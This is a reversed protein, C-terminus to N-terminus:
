TEAQEDDSEEESELAPMDEAPEEDCPEPPMESEDPLNAAADRVDLKGTVVDAILRTRYERLLDIEHRTADIAEDLSATASEVYQVIADQESLPPLPVVTDALYKYEISEVTAEQKVWQGRLGAQNGEILAQLYRPIMQGNPRLAKMDQNLAVAVTNVAVPIFTRLIGSRVVVLVADPPILTSSSGDLAGPTIHDLTDSISASKMDKPSVWPIDGAWYAANSKSPTGGGAFRVVYKLKRLRWHEPIDGLWPVGSPKLRVNPDLGRTVARQIIAQKQENLLAILRQKARIYKRIRRDVYDLYRVIALQEAKPAITVSLGKLVNGDVHPIGMGVALARLTHEVQQCAYFFFQQDAMRPMVRAATSSVAGPKAKLFEGANAGDWLLITEGRHVLVLDPQYAAYEFPIEGNSRLYNMSLYPVSGEPQHEREVLSRPLRGKEVIASARLSRLEWHEPVQGLWPIGSDKYAPYPKLDVTV